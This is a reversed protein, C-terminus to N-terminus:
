GIPWSLIVIFGQFESVKKKIKASGTIVGYPM